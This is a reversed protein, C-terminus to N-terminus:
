RSKKNVKATIIKTLLNGLFERLQKKNEKIFKKNM